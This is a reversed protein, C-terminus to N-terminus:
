HTYVDDPKIRNLMEEGARYRRVNEAIIDLSRAVLDPMEATQHHTIITNPADWIAADAPLPEQEFVDLGAGAITGAHLASILAAEDVVHGRAINILYASRKMLGLERAGIMRFTVDTLRISLVVFDSQSLLEDIAQGAAADYFKDLGPIKAQEPGRGYGLVRMGMAKGLAVVERGTYGLGIVGLTKGYLGRRESYGPIQRWEHREKAKVLAPADYTLGLAFFFVHQALAPAARGASATVILDSRAIVEPRASKNVGAHDCHVWRLNEAAAFRPDLDAKLVAVDVTRIVKAIEEENEPAVQIVTAPAFIERLRELHWGSYVVTALVSNIRRSSM